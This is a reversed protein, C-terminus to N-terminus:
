RLETWYSTAMRDPRRRLPDGLLRAVLAVPTVVFLYVVLLLVSVVARRLVAM